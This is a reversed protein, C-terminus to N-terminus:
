PGSAARVARELAEVALKVVTEVATEGHVQRAVNSARACILPDHDIRQLEDVVRRPTWQKPNVVRALGLRAVRAANDPQDVFYPAILQPRGSRLAQATTGIGGHHVIAKCRGFVKSYPLYGTILLDRSACGRLAARHEDDLVVIAREKLVGAAAVAVQAFPGSDHVASTGQTFVIPPPGGAIFTEVEAAAREDTPPGDYFAFGAIVFGPPFDPQVDGLVRSYLGIPRGGTFQGEFFPHVSAAPLGIERRLRYVPRAWLSSVARGVKLFARTGIRGTRYVMRSLRQANGVLPPDFASLLSYPQLVVGLHPLGLKEAALKAGFAISSSIVLAADTMAAISDDYTQRLYPLMFKTLMIQPQDRVARLMEPRSLHLDSEIQEQAPRLAHFRLGVAEVNSRFHEFTAIVPDFGHERLGLAVAIFPHLDGHTGFTALVVKNATNALTRIVRRRTPCSGRSSWCRRIAITRLKSGPTRM